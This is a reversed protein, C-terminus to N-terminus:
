RQNQAAFNEVTPKQRIEIHTPWALPHHWVTSRPTNKFFREIFDTHGVHNFFINNIQATQGDTTYFLIYGYGAFLYKSNGSQTIHEEIRLLSKATLRVSQNPYHIILSPQHPNFTIATNRTLTWYLWDVYFFFILFFIFAVFFFALFFGVPQDQQVAAKLVLYVLFPMGIALSALLLKLFQSFYQAASFRYTRETYIPSDKGVTENTYQFARDLYWFFAAFVLALLTFFTEM